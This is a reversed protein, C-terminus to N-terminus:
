QNGSLIRVWEKGSSWASQLSPYGFQPGALSMGADTFHPTSALTLEDVIPLARSVTYRKLFRGKLSMGLLDQIEVWVESESAGHAGPKIQVSWLHQGKPAYSPEVNSPISFTQVLPSNSANLALFKGLKAEEKAAFYLTETGRYAREEENPSHSGSAWVVQRYQKGDIEWYDGNKEPRVERGWYRNNQPLDCILDRAFQQIGNPPLLAGGNSFAKYFLCFLAAPSALDAELFVGSFWPKFFNDIALASFGFSQLFSLSSQQLRDHSLLVEDSKTRVYQQLLAIKVKDGLSVDQNFLTKMLPIIGERPHSLLSRSGKKIVWAGSAYSRYKDFPKSGYLPKLDAYGSQLVQFGHDLAFGEVQATRLLGGPETEKEYWDYSIGAEHCARAISIGTIGAGIIAVKQVQMCACIYGRNGAPLALM